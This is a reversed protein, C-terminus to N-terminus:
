DNAKFSIILQNPKADVWASVSKYVDEYNAYLIHVSWKLKKIAELDQPKLRHSLWFFGSTTILAAPIFLCPFYPWLIDVTYRDNLNAAKARAAITRLNFRFARTVPIRQPTKRRRYARPKSCLMSGSRGHIPPGWAFRHPLASTRRAMLSRISAPYLGISAFTKVPQVPKRLFAAGNEAHHENLGNRKWTSSQARPNGMTKPQAIRPRM